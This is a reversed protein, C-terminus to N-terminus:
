VDFHWGGESSLHKKLENWRDRGFAKHMADAQSGAKVLLDKTRYRTGRKRAAVLIRIIALQIDGRFTMSEGHITLTRGDESLHVPATIPPADSGKFRLAVVTPDVDISTSAGLLDQVPLLVHRDVRFGTVRAAATSTFVARLEPSPRREALEKLEAQVSTDGLRRAFWVETVHGKKLFQAEGLILVTGRVDKELEHRRRWSLRWFMWEAMKRVDIRYRTLREPPVEVWGSKPTFHGLGDGQPATAISVLRDDYGGEDVVANESDWPILLGADILARGTDPHFMEIATATLVPDRQELLEFLLTRAKPSFAKVSM